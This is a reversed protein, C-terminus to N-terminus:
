FLFLLLLCEIVTGELRPIGAYGHDHVHLAAHGEDKEVVEQQIRKTPPRRKTSYVKHEFMTQM